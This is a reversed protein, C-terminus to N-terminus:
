PLGIYARGRPSSFEKDYEIKRKTHTARKPCDGGGLANARLVGELVLVLVIVSAM